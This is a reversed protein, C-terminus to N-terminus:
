HFCLIIPIGCLCFTILCLVLPVLFFLIAPTFTSIRPQCGIVGEIYYRSPEFFIFKVTEIVIASLLIFLMEFVSRNWRSRRDELIPHPDFIKVLYLVICFGSTAAITPFIDKIRSSIDCWGYGNTWTSDDSSAFLTSDVASVLCVFLVETSLIFTSVMSNSNRLHMLDILLCIISGLVNFCTFTPDSM